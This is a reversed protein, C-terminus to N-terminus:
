TVTDNGGRLSKLKGAENLETLHKIRRDVEAQIHPAGHLSAVSPVVVEDLQAPSANVAATSLACSMQSRQKVEVPSTDSMIQELSTLRGGLSKLEALIHLNLANDAAQSTLGSVSPSQEIHSELESNMADVFPCKSNIPRKHVHRCKKCLFEKSPM